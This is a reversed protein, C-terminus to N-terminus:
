NWHSPRISQFCGTRMPLEKLYNDFFSLIVKNIIELVKGNDVDGMFGRGEIGRVALGLDTFDLHDIGDITMNWFDFETSKYAFENALYFNSSYMVLFPALLPKDWNYGQQNGDIHVGAKCRDDLKCFEGAATGGFSHGIVGLREIDLAEVFGSIPTEISAIEDVVFQIDEVWTQAISGMATM